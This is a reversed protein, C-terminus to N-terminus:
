SILEFLHRSVGAIGSHRSETGDQNKIMKTPRLTELNFRGNHAGYVRMVRDKKFTWGGNATIHRLLRVRRGVFDRDLMNKM